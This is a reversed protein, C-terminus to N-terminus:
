RTQGTPPTALAQVLREHLSRVEDASHRPARRALHGAVLRAPLIVVGYRRAVAPTLYARSFVLMPETKMGMVREVHKSQAYAQKLMKLNVQDANLRGRHSKTEVTFIGAPGVLVHDINGRGSAVDHIVLWGRGRMADLIRGVTEEGRAGRDRRDIIPMALRDIAVVAAIAVVEALVFARSHFGAVVSVGAAALMVVVVAVLARLAYRRVIERQHQGARRSPLYVAETGAGDSARLEGGVPAIIAAWLNTSFQV